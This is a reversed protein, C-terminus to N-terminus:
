RNDTTKEREMATLQQEIKIYAEVAKPTRKKLFEFWRRSVGAKRCLSAISIGLANARRTIQQALENPTPEAMNYPPNSREM